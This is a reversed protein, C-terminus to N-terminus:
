ESESLCQAVGMSPVKGVSVPWTVQRQSRTRGPFGPGSLSTVQGLHPTIYWLVM